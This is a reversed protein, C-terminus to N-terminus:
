PTEAIRETTAHPDATGVARRRARWTTLTGLLDAAVIEPARDGSITVLAGRADFARLMPRTEVDYVHLRAHIASVTDDDRGRARLREIIRRAPVDLELVLDIPRRTELAAAQTVTRPYGDLLVGRRPGIDDLARGLLELIAADDALHGSTVTAHLDRGLPTARRVEDRVLDGTSVHVLGMQSAVREAQTGKGAGPRGALVVTIGDRRSSHAVGGAAGVRQFAVSQTV